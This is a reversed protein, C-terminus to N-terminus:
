ESRCTEFTILIILHRISVPKNTQLNELLKQIKILIRTMSIITHQYTNKRYRTSHKHLCEKQNLYMYYIM